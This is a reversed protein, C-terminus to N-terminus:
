FMVLQIITLTSKENNKLFLKKVRHMFSAVLLTFHPVTVMVSDNM